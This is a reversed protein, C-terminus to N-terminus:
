QDAWPDNTLTHRAQAYFSAAVTNVFDCAEDIGAIPLTEKIDAVLARAEKLCVQWVICWDRGSLDNAGASTHPAQAAAGVAAPAASPAGLAVINKYAGNAEWTFTLTQGVAAIMADFLAEDWVTFDDGGAKVSVFRKGTAKTTRPNAAGIQATQAHQERPAAQETM